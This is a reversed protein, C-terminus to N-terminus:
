SAESPEWGKRKGRRTARSIIVEQLMKVPSSGEGSTVGLLTVNTEGFDCPVHGPCVTCSGGGEQEKKGMGKGCSFHAAVPQWWVCSTLLHRPPLSNINGGVPSPRLTQELSLTSVCRGTM